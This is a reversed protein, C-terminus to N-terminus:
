GGGGLLQELGAGEIAAEANDLMDRADRFGSWLKGVLSELKGIYAAQEEILMLLVDTM